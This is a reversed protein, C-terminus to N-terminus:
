PFPSPFSSFCPAPPSKKQAAFFPPKLSPHTTTDRKRESTGLTILYASLQHGDSPCPPPLRDSSESHSSAGSSLGRQPADFPSTSPISKTLCKSASPTFFANFAVACQVLYPFYSSPLSVKHPMLCLEKWCTRRLKRARHSLHLVIETGKGGFTTTAGM